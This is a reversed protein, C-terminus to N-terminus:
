ASRSFFSLFDEQLYKFPTGKELLLYIFPTGKRFFITYLLTYLITYLITYLLTPGRPPAEGYLVKKLVGGGGPCMGKYTIHLLVEGRPGLNHLLLLIVMSIGKKRSATTVIALCCWCCSQFLDEWTSTWFINEIFTLKRAAFNFVTYLVLLYFTCVGVQSM